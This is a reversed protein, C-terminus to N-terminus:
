QAKLVFLPADRELATVLAPADALHFFAHLPGSRRHGPVFQRFSVRSALDGLAARFREGDAHSSFQIWARLRAANMVENPTGTGTEGLAQCSWDTFCGARWAELVLDAIAEDVDAAHVGHTIKRQTHPM